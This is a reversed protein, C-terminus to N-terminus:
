NPINVTNGTDRQSSSLGSKQPKKRKKKLTEAGSFGRPAVLISIADTQAAAVCSQLRARM